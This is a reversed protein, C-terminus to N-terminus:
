ANPIAFLFKSGIGVESEVWIRGGHKEVFEKCLILGIGTGQENNTGPTSRVSEIKFLKDIKDAAMGVGNDEVCVETNNDKQSCSVTIEGGRHTFKLANSILNRLVTNLMNFDGTIRCNPNIDNKLIIGKANAARHNLDINLSVLDFLRNEVPNFAINHAQSSAWTLLNELLKLSRISTEKMNKIFSIVGEATLNDYNTEIMSSFQIIESLPSKLDHGIISFFKDKTANAQTLKKNQNELQLEIKKRNNIDRLVWVVGKTLDAPINPDIAKGYVACWTPTGDKKKLQVDVETVTHTALKEFFTDGFEQFAKDSLHWDRVSKGKFEEESDYGFMEVTTKNVRHIYRGGKLVAYGVVSNHFISELEDHAENLMREANRRETIDNVIWLIGKDIDAPINRDIMSGSVEVWVESGDKRKFPMEHRVTKGYILKNKIDDAILEYNEASVHLDAVDLSEIEEPSDYNLIEVIKENVKVFERKGNFIVIGIQPNSFVSEFIAHNSDLDRIEVKGKKESKMAKGM